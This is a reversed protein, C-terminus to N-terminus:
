QEPLFLEPRKSLLGVGGAIVTKAKAYLAQGVKGVPVRQEFTLLAQSSVSSCPAAASPSCCAEKGATSQDRRGLVFGIGVGVAAAGVVYPLWEKDAEMTAFNPDHKTCVVIRSVVEGKCLLGPNLAQL